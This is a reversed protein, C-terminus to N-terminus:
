RKKDIIPKSSDYKKWFEPDEKVQEELPKWNNLQEEKPIKTVNNQEISTTILSQYIHFTSVQNKSFFNRDTLDSSAEITLDNAYWKGKYPRYHIVAHLQPDTVGLGALFLLPRAADPVLIRSEFDIAVVADSDLSIFISGNRKRHEYTKRSEFRIIIVHEENYMTYGAIEYNYYKKLKPNLFSATDRIPDNRLIMRPGGFTASLVAEDLSMEKLDEGKKIAKKQEKKLRKELRNRM